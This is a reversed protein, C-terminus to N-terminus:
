INVYKGECWGHKLSIMKAIVLVEKKKQKPFQILFQDCDWARIVYIRKNTIYNSFLDIIEITREGLDEIKDLALRHRNRLIEVYFYKRDNEIFTNRIFYFNTGLKRKPTTIITSITKM